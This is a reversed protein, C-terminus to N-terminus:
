RERSGKKFKLDARGILKPRPELGAVLVLSEIMEDDNHEARQNIQKVVGLRTNKQLNSCRLPFFSVTPHHTSSTVRRVFLNYGSIELM